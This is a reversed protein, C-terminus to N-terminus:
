VFRPRDFAFTQELGIAVILGRMSHDASKSDGLGIPLAALYPVPAAVFQLPYRQQPDTDTLSFATL